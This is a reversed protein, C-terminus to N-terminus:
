LGGIVKSEDNIVYIRFLDWRISEHGLLKNTHEWAAETNREKEENSLFLEKLM